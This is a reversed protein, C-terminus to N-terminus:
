GGPEARYLGREAIYRRVAAPVLAALEGEKGARVLARVETSSVAPLLPAPADPHVVGARGLVIPPALEAIRDYRHWKPLDALVDAGIVLRLARAPEEALLAEVTHLTFSEGGLRREVDSVEVGPMWAMALECMRLRDAFPALEKEFPHQFVPVVLVGDLEHGSRLLACALVHGIHPPNFSGGFVGVSHTMM